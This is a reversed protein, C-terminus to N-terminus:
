GDTVLIGYPFYVLGDSFTVSNPRFIFSELSRVIIYSSTMTERGVPESYLWKASSDRFGIESRM